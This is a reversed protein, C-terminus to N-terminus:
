GWYITNVQGHRTHTQGGGWMRIGNRERVRRGTKGVLYGSDHVPDLDLFDSKQVACFIWGTM